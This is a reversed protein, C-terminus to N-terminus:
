TVVALTVSRAPAKAINSRRRALRLWTCFTSTSPPYVPFGKAVATCLRSPAETSTTFRLSSCVKTTSGFRHTTSRDKPQSSFHRRRQFFQSLFSLVLRCITTRAKATSIRFLNYVPELLFRRGGQQGKIIGFVPEVVQKRLKYVKTAASTAMWTRHRRLAADNPGVTVNRGDKSKTCVGFAPCARCVAGPAQYFGTISETPPYTSVSSPSCRERPVCSVTTARMTPSGTRTTRIIELSDGHHSRCPWRRAEALASQCTPGRTIDADALTMPAKSGTTEEAQELMPTFSTHDDPEDVLGVATILMGNLDGEATVPSVMAQGNYSPVIGQRTKMLRADKDTLNIHKLSEQSALDDM